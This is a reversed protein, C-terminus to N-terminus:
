GPAPEAAPRRAPRSEPAIFGSARALALFADGDHSAGRAVSIAPAAGHFREIAQRTEDLDVASAESENVVIARLGIGAAALARAATLAHSIAGLYSGGVLLAPCGLAALLDLGTGDEAVPSMVGGVGEILLPGSAAAIRARCFDVIEGLRLVRGERRAAMDPALPAAFRFTTISAINEANPAMGMAALLVGPDSAAANEPDYGSAVPKLARAEFGRGRLHRLLGVTVFTKGIDTGTGTVFLASM